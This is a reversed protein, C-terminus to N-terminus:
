PSPSPTSSSPTSPASSTHGPQAVWSTRGLDDIGVRTINGNADTVTTPSLRRLDLETTSVHGAPNTVTVMQTAAAVPAYVTTTTQSEGDTASTVRGYADYGSQTTIVTAANAREDVRTVLGDPIAQSAASSTSGDYFYRTDGVLTGAGACSSTYEYVRGVYDLRNLERAAAGAAYNTRVCAPVVAGARSASTVRGYSDHEFEMVKTQTSAVGATDVVRTRERVAATVVLSADNFPDVQGAVAPVTRAVAYTYATGTLEPGVVGTASVERTRQEFVQGALWARDTSSGSVFGPISDTRTSGNSLKTGYMGRFFRYDTAEIIRGAGGGRYVPDLLTDVRVDRYGRWGAYSQATLPVIKVPQNDQAWAATGSYTYRTLHDVSPEGFGVSGGPLRNDVSVALTVYKHFLGFGGPAGDPNWFRPFCAKGNTDFASPHAGTCSAGSPQGYTVDTRAGLEDTIGAVRYKSLRPVGLGADHDVRNDFQAGHLTITPLPTNGSASYGVKQIRALWLNPSTGDVHAPFLRRM